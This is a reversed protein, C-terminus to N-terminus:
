VAQERRLEGTMRVARWDMGNRLIRGEVYERILMMGHDAGWATLALYGQGNLYGIWDLQKPTPKGNKSKVELFLAGYGGAMTPICLDPVGPEVGIKKMRAAEAAHRSGGNPVHFLRIGNLRAWAVITAQEEWETAELRRM